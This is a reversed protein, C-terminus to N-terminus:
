FNHTRPKLDNMFWTESFFAIILGDPLIFHLQLAVNIFDMAGEGTQKLMSIQIFLYANIKIQWNDCWITVIVLFIHLIFCGCLQFSLITKFYKKKLDSRNSYAHANKNSDHAGHWNIEFFGLDIQSSKLQSIKFIDSFFMIWVFCLLLM